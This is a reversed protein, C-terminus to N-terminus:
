GGVKGSENVRAVDDKTIGGNHHDDLQKEKEKMVLSKVSKIANEKATILRRAKKVDLDKLLASYDQAKAPSSVPKTPVLQSAVPYSTSPFTPKLRKSDPPHTGHGGNSNFNM